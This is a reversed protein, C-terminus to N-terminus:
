CVKNQVSWLQAQEIAQASFMRSLADKREKAERCHLSPLPGFIINANEGTGGRYTVPSPIGILVM